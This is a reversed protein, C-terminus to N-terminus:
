AADNAGGLEDLLGLLYEGFAKEESDPLREMTERLEAELKKAEAANGFLQEYRSALFLYQLRDKGQVGRDLLARAGELAKRRYERAKEPDGVESEYLYALVRQLWNDFAPDNDRLSYLSEPLELKRRLSPMEGPKFHEFLYDRILETESSDLNDLDEWFAVFGTSPCFWIAQPDTAPWFVQDFKSTAHYIYSGWGAPSSGVCEGEGIPDPVTGPLLSTATALSPHFLFGAVITLLAAKKRWLPGM